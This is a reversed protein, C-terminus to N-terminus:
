YALLFSNLPFHPMMNKVEMFFIIRTCSNFKATTTKVRLTVSYIYVLLSNKYNETILNREHMLPIGNRRHTKTEMCRQPIVPRTRPLSAGPITCPGVHSVALAYRPCCMPAGPFDCQRVQSMVHACWPCSICPAPRTLFFFLWPSSM